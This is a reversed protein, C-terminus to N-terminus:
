AFQWQIEIVGKDLPALQKFVAQSLDLAGSSCYQKPCTDVVRANVSKGNYTVKVSKGCQARGGMQAENMAVILDNTDFPTGCSGQKDTFWTGRGSYIGNASAAASVLNMESAPIAPASTNRPLESPVQPDIPAAMTALAATALIALKYLVTM